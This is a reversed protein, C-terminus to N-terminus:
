TLVRFCTGLQPPHSDNPLIQTEQFVGLILLACVLLESHKSLTNELVTASGRIRFYDISKDLVSHKLLFMVIEPHNGRSFKTFCNQFHIYHCSFDTVHLHPSWFPSHWELSKSCTDSPIWDWSCKGPFMEGPCSVQCEATNSCRSRSTGGLSHIRSLRPPILLADPPSWLFSFPAEPPSSSRLGESSGFRQKLNHFCLDIEM